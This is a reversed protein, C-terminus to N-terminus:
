LTGPDSMGIRLQPTTLAEQITWGLKNIRDDLITRKIKLKDAWQSTTLTQGDHTILRNSSRNNNNQKRTAWYCNNKSYGKSNDRREITYSDDPPHGMDELFNEFKQWSHSAPRNKYKPNYLHRRKMTMWRKYLKTRTMGHTRKM